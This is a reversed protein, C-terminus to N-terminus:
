YFIIKSFGSSLEEGLFKEVEKKLNEIVEEITIGKCIIDAESCISIYFGNEQRITASFPFFITM